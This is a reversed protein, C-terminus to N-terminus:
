PTPAHPRCSPRSAVCLASTTPRWPPAFNPSRFSKSRAKREIGANNVLVDIPGHDKPNRRVSPSPNTPDVDMASIAIPLGGARGNDALQPSRAPDRMTAHVNYGARAFALATEYGIGQSTGTIIVSPM